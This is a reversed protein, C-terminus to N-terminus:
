PNPQFPSMKSHMMMADNENEGSPDFNIVSPLPYEKVTNMYSETKSQLQKRNHRVM